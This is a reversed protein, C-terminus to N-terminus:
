AALLASHGGRRDTAADLGCNAGMPKLLAEFEFGQGIPRTHYSNRLKVLEM